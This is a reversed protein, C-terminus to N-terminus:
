SSSSLKISRFVLSLGACTLLLLFFDETNKLLSLAGKETPDRGNSCMDDFVLALKSDDSPCFHVHHYFYIYQIYVVICVGISAHSFVCCAHSMILIESYFRLLYYDNICIM